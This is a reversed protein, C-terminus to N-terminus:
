GKTEESQETTAQQTGARQVGQSVNRALGALADGAILVGATGYVLGRRLWGRAKPSFIAAAVAATVAVEPELYDELAMPEGRRKCCAKCKLMILTTIERAM